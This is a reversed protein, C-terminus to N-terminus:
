AAEGGFLLWSSFDAKPSQSRCFDLGDFFDTTVTKGAKFEIGHWATGPEVVTDVEHGNRGRWFYVSSAEGRNERPQKQSNTLNPKCSALCRHGLWKLKRKAFVGTRSFLRCSTNASPCRNV